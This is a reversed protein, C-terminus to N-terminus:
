KIDLLYFTRAAIKLLVRGDYFFERSRSLSTADLAAAYGNSDTTRLVLPSFHNVLVLRVKTGLFFSEGFCSPDFFILITMEFSPEYRVRGRRRRM